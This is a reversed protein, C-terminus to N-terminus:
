LFHCNKTGSLNKQGNSLFTMKKLNSHFDVLYAMVNQLTWPILPLFKQNFYPNSDTRCAFKGLTSTMWPLYVHPSKSSDIFTFTSFESKILWISNWMKLISGIWIWSVCYIFFFFLLPSQYFTFERSKGENMRWFRWM